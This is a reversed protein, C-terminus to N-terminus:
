AAGTRGCAAIWITDRTKLFTWVHLFWPRSIVLKDWLGGMRMVLGNGLSIYIDYFMRFKPSMSGPKLTLSM